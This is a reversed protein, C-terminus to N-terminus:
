VSAPCPDSYVWKGKVPMSQDFASFDGNGSTVLYQFMIKPGSANVLLM